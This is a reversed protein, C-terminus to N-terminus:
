LERSEIIEKTKYMVQLNTATPNKKLFELMMQQQEETELYSMSRECAEMVVGARKMLTAIERQLETMTYKRRLIQILNGNNDRSKEIILKFM